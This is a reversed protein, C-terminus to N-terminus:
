SRDERTHWIRLISLLQGAIEYRMEYEGVILRRVERASFNPVQKGMRPHQLPRRPAFALNQVVRNAAPEAAPLLFEYLRSLDELAEPSWRITM